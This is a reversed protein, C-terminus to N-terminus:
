EGTIEAIGAFGAQYADIILKVVDDDAMGAADFTSSGTVTSGGGSESVKVVATYNALPFLGDVVSYTYSKGSWSYDDLSELAWTGDATVITRHFVGNLQSTNTDVIWPHWKHLGGFENIVHWVEDASAKFSASENVELAHAGLGYVSMMIGAATGVMFKRLNGM